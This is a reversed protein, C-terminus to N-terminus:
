SRPGTKVETEVFVVTTSGTNLVEHEAGAARYTANGVVLEVPMDGTAARFTLQGGSTPVVVYPYEHRHWAISTGPKLAWRAVRVDDNELLAAKEATTESM